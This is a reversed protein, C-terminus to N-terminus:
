TTPPPPEPPDAVRGGPVHVDLAVRAGPLSLLPEPWGDAVTPSLALGAVAGDAGAGAGFAPGRTQGDAAAAEADHTVLHGNVLHVHPVLPHLLDAQHVGDGTGVPTTLVMLLVLLFPLLVPQRHM